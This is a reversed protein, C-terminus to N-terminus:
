LVHTLCLALNFLSKKKFERAQDRLCLFVRYLKEMGGDTNFSWEVFATTYRSIQQEPVWLHSWYIMEGFCVSRGLLTADQQVDTRASHQLSTSEIDSNIVESSYGNSKAEAIPPSGFHEVYTFSKLLCLCLKHWLVVLFNHCIKFRLEYMFTGKKGTKTWYNLSLCGCLMAYTAGADDTMVLLCLSQSALHCLSIFHWCLGFCWVSFTMTFYICVKSSPCKAVFAALIFYFHGAIFKNYCSAPNCLM